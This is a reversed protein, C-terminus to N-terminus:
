MQQALRQGFSLGTEHVNIGHMHGVVRPHGVNEKVVDWTMWECHHPAYENAESALHNESSSAIHTTRILVGDLEPPSTWYSVKYLDYVWESVPVLEVTQM